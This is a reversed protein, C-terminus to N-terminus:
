FTEEYLDKANGGNRSLTRDWTQYAKGNQDTITWKIKLDGYLDVLNVNVYSAFGKTVNFSITKSRGSVLEENVLISVLEGKENKYSIKGNIFEGTHTMELKATYVPNVDNDRSCSMALFMFAFLATISSCLFRKM